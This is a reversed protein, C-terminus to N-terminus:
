PLVFQIGISLYGFPNANGSAFFSTSNTDYAIPSFSPFSTTKRNEYTVGILESFALELFIKKTAAYAIGPTINLGARTLRSKQSLRTNTGNVEYWEQKEFNGGLAANAFLLFKNSLPFYRRYFFGGGYSRNTVRDFGTTSTLQEYKRGGLNAFVGLIRNSKIAKGFQPSFNWSNGKTDITNGGSRDDTNTSFSFSGGILKSGKSIQAQSVQIVSIGIALALLKKKM